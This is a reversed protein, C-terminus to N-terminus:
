EKCHGALGGPGPGGPKMGRQLGREVRSWGRDERHSRSKCLSCERGAVPGECQGHRQKLCMVWM